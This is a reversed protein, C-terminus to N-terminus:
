GQDQASVVALASVNVLGRVSVSNTVVHVPKAAGLLLPGVSIGDGMTKIINMAIHAADINPMVLVNAPGNINTEKMYRSRAVTDLASDVHMEGDFEFDVATNKLINVAERSKNASENKHSGFSSHSVLAVKPVIGFDRVQESSLQALEALEEASPNISIHSDCIFVAGKPLIVCTVTSLDRVGENLGIVERVHQVHETFPGISGCIMADAEGRRVMIAGVVTPVTRIVEKAKDPTVGSRGLLHHYDSWYEDYREDDQINTIHVDDDLNLRLGLKKVRDKIVDPRGILMPRAINDDVLQQIAQLVLWSEGEAFVLRKPDEQAQAYVPTMIFQSRFVTGSLIRKYEKFDQIPRTAVGSDMAAKAVAPAVQSILRPDFPKPIIYDPGFTNSQGYAKFVEQTTEVMTLDALAKVCAIKMEENIITAGVDLAGRFIFPFCLVNNVQNPYDSRGTAIIANPRIEKALEPMIEPVPNSLALIVPQDTMKGVMEQTLAGAMSCGLFIDAGEIADLLTRAETDNAYVQKYKDMGQERGKYIVGKSDCVIINEKKMGMSVLLNLCALAAAGAGSCVLKVEDFSKNIIRLSNFIATTAIIATGHQDDHFVPINMRERLTEEVEFCEPAKIDELNIGGFTPELSAIIEILKKPDREDIEIDFVNVGAFKKFLVAKGEMVPKSALAGIKGLGLVATGNSIVGVLNGKTTYETALAPNDAIELCAAAVGPSYALSLDHQTAMPKTARIQLKGKPEASHYDLAEQKFDKEM